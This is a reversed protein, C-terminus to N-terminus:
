FGATILFRLLKHGMKYKTFLHWLCLQPIVCLQIKNQKERTIVNLNQYTFKYDSVVAVPGSSKDERDKVNKLMICSSITTTTRDKKLLLPSAHLFRRRYYTEPMRQYVYPLPNELQAMLKPGTKSHFSLAKTPSDTQM